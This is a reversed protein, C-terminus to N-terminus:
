RERQPNRNRMMGALGILGFLGIWGWDYDRNAATATTRYRGDYRGDNLGVGNGTYNNTGFRGNGAVGNNLYRGTGTNYANNGYTGGVGTANYPGTGNGTAAGAGNGATGQAFAPVTLMMSLGAVLLGSRILKKM